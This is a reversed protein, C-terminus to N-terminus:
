QCVSVSKKELRFTVLHCASSVEKDGAGDLGEIESASVGRILSSAEELFPATGRLSGGDPSLVSGVHEVAVIAEAEQPPLFTNEGLECNRPGFHPLTQSGAIGQAECPSNHTNYNTVPSQSLRACVPGAAASEESEPTSLTIISSHLLSEAQSLARDSTGTSLVSVPLASPPSASALHSSLSTASLHKSDTPPYQDLPSSPPPPRVVTILLSDYNTSGADELVQCVFSVEFSMCSGLYLM